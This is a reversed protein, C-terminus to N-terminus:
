SSYWFTKTFKGISTTGDRREEFTTFIVHEVHISSSKLTDVVSRLLVAKDRDLNHSFILVRTPHAATAIDSITNLGEAVLTM